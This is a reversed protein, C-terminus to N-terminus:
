GEIIGMIGCRVMSEVAQRTYFAMHLTIVDCERYFTELDVYKALSGATDNQYVDYALLRCGFGSLNKLVQCGIRGTGMVGVTLSNMDQGMLGPLSFDNVMGRWLAQKYQRLCLLILMVAFDAVGNPPYNANKVTIGLEKAAELDIHDMGITRTTIKMIGMEKYRSLLEKNIKGQGLITVGASGRALEANDLSPVESTILLEIGLTERLRKLEDMEDPRAEYVTIKM